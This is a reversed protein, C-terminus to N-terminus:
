RRRLVVTENDHSQAATFLGRLATYDGANAALRRAVDLRRTTLLTRAAPDATVNLTASGFAGHHARPPPTGELLWSEPWSVHWEVENRDGFELLVPTRRSTPSLSAGITVPGLPASPSLLLESEDAETSSLRWEVEVRADDVSEKVAVDTVTWGKLRGVLWEQWAAVAQERTDKWGIIRWGHHGTLSLTGRGTAQGNEGVAIDVRAVRRNEVFPASPLTVVEPKSFDVLVAPMEEFGPPIHGFAATPDTPDLFIRQDGAEIAVLVRTFWAPTPVSPDIAGDARDAAWVLRAPIEAKRLMAQLVLAKEVSSGRTDSAVSDVTANEGPSLSTREDDTRITDRVWRYLIAAKAKTDGTEGRLMTHTLRDLNASKRLADKYEVEYLGCTTSWDELLHIPPGYGGLRLPVLLMRPSFDRSPFAYPEDPLAKLNDVWVRVLSGKVDKGQESKIAEKGPGLGVLSVVLGPPVHYTIESHLVPVMEAFYWPELYSYDDWYLSFRYDLIAGVEVKPFAVSTVFTRKTKSTTTTFSADPPLPVVTGDATVTRGEFDRLRTFSSHFVRVTGEDLGKETLIKERVAVELISTAPQASPHPMRLRGTRFLIVAPADPHGAITTIAREAETIPPLEGAMTLGPTLLTTLALALCAVGLSPRCSTKEVM